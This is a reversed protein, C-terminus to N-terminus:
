RIRVLIANVQPVLFKAKKDVVLLKELEVPRWTGDTAVKSGGLTIEEKSTISPATLTYAEATTFGEPISLEINAKQELDKNIVTVWLEHDSKKTAYVKLNLNVESKTLKILNGRGSISFALMGYYSAREILLNENDRFIPSYHSIFGLQNVDTQINVGAGGYSAIRFMADLCWLSAAFSDSVGEKGGGTFSGMENIRFKINNVKCVDQLKGFREDSIPHNELLTDITALKSGAGGRYYHHILLSLDKSETKAFNLSWDIDGNSAVDAGSFKARPLVARIAVKYELYTSHYENYDVFRKLLNVENGIEFSHLGDGLAEDIALAVETAEEISGTGLNLTWMVKWGTASLFDGLDKLVSQNIITYKEKPRGIPKGNREYKTWDGIIGGIRIMGEAGLTKYLQIMHINEPSFLGENAVASTEYGFGIFDENLDGVNEKPYIKLRVTEPEVLQQGEALFSVSSLILVLINKFCINRWSRIECEKSLIIVQRNKQHITKM